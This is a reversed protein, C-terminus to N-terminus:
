CYFLLLTCNFFMKRERLHRELVDTKRFEGPNTIIKGGDHNPLIVSSRSLFGVNINRQFKM